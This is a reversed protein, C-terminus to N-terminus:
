FRVSASLSLSGAKGAMCGPFREQRAKQFDEESLWSGLQSKAGPSPIPVTDWPRQTVIVTKREVRAVDKPDTRALWSPLPSLDFM